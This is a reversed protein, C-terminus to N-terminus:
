TRVKKPYNEENFILITGQKSPGLHFRSDSNTSGKQLVSSGSFCEIVRMMYSMNHLTVPQIVAHESSLVSHLQNSEERRQSILSQASSWRQM